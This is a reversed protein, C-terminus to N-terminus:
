EVRKEVERPSCKDQLDGGRLPYKREQRCPVKRSWLSRKSDGKVLVKGTADNRRKPTKPFSPAKKPQQKLGKRCKRQKDELVKGKSLGRSIAPYWVRGGRGTIHGMSGGCIPTGSFPPGKRLSSNEGNPPPIILTVWQIGKTGVRGKRCPCVRPRTKM